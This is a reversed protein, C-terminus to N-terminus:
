WENAPIAATGLLKLGDIVEEKTSGTIRAACWHGSSDVHFVHKCFISKYGGDSTPTITSEPELTERTYTPILSTGNGYMRRKINEDRQLDDLSNFDTSEPDGVIECCGPYYLTLRTM